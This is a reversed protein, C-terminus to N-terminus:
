NKKERLFLSAIRTDLVPPSGKAKQEFSVKPGVHTWVYTRIHTHEHTYTHMCKHVNTYRHFSWSQTKTYPTTITSTLLKYQKKNKSGPHFIHKINMILSSSRIWINALEAHERIYFWVSWTTFPKWYLYLYSSHHTHLLPTAYHISFVIQPIENCYLLLVTNSHWIHDICNLFDLAQYLM